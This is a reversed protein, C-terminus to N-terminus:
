YETLGDSPDLKRPQEFEFQPVFGQKRMRIVHGVLRRYDDWLPKYGIIYGITLGLVVGISLTAVGYLTLILGM